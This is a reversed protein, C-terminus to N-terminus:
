RVLAHLPVCAVIRLDPDRGPVPAAALQAHVFLMVGIVLFLTFQVFIIIGIVFLFPIVNTALIHMLTTAVSLLSM